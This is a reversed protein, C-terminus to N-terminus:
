NLHAQLTNLFETEGRLSIIKIGKEQAYATDIHDLGTTATAIIKLNIGKDIIEKDINLGLGVLIINYDAIKNVLEEQTLDLYDTQGISDLITRAKDSYKSGITNLIKNM